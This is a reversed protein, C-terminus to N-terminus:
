RFPKLDLDVEVRQILKKKEGQFISVFNKKCVILVGFVPIFVNQTKEFIRHYQIKLKPLGLFDVAVTGPM